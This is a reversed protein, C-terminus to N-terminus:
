GGTLASLLPGIIITPIFATIDNIIIFMFVVFFFFSSTQIEYIRNFAIKKTSLSEAIKISFYLLMLRGLLMSTSNITNFVNMDESISGFTSGNNTINSVNMLLIKALTISNSHTSDGILNNITYTTFILLGCQYLVLYSIIYHIEGSDVKKGLFQPIRGAMMGCFFITLLIYILLNLIGTGAGGLIFGGLSVNTLILVLSSPSLSSSTSNSSGSTFSSFPMYLSSGIIDFRQEKGDINEFLGTIKYETEFKYMLSTSIFLYLFIFILISIANKPRNISKAYCFILSTPIICMMIIELLNSVDNPNEFPHGSNVNFYGGGNVGILSIAKFLAVPGQPMLQSLGELTTINTYNSFNQIVGQSVLLMASIFCLPSLIYFFIRFLLLYFNPFNKGDEEANNLTLGRFFFFAVAIGTSSAILGSFALTLQSLYSLSLEGAYTQWNTGTIFSLSINTALDSSIGLFSQPNLPLYYQTKLIIYTFLFVFSNFILIARWFENSTQRRSKLVFKSLFLDEYAFLYSDRSIVLFAKSIPIALLVVCVIILLFFITLYLM